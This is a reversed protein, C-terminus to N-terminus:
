DCVMRKWHEISGHFRWDADLITHFILEAIEILTHRNFCIESRITNVDRRFITEDVHVQWSINHTLSRNPLM